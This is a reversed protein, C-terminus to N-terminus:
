FITLLSKNVFMLRTSSDELGLAVRFGNGCNLVDLLKIAPKFKIIDKAQEKWYTNLVTLVQEKQEQTLTQINMKSRKCVLHLNCSLRLM